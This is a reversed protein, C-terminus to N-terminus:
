SRSSKRGSMSVVVALLHKNKGASACKKLEIDPVAARLLGAVRVVTKAAVQCGLMESKCLLRGSCETVLYRRPLM